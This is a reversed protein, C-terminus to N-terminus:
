KAFVKKSKTYNESKRNNETIRFKQKPFKEQLSIKREHYEPLNIKASKLGM